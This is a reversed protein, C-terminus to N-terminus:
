RPNWGLCEQGTAVSIRTLRQVTGFSLKELLPCYEEKPPGINPTKWSGLGLGLCFGVGGGNERIAAGQAGAAAAARPSM